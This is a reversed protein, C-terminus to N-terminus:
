TVESCTYPLCRFVCSPDSVKYLTVSWISLSFISAPFILSDYAINKREVPGAVPLGQLICLLCFM